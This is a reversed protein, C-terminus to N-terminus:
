QTLTRRAAAIKSAVSGDIIEDGIRVVAGGLLEPEVSVALTVPQGYIRTLVQALRANQEPTIPMPVRVDALLQQRRAAALEVLEDLVEPVRRGGPHAVAHRVLATTEPQTRGALLESVVDAKVSDPVAPDTLLVQLDGSSDLVRTFRFLEEEVADIRGQAEARALLAEAGLAELGEVLDRPSSWRRAAAAAVVELAPEGVQGTLVTRALAARRQPETGTDALAARLAGERRLLAVVALLEDGEAPATVGSRLDARLAALADRSAGQM